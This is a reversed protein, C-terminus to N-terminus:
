YHDLDQIGGGGGTTDYESVTQVIGDSDFVYTVAHGESEAGGIFPGVYPIYSTARTKAKGYSYTWSEGGDGLDTRGNPVGLLRRVDDRTSEGKVIQSRLSMDADQKNGSHYVCGNLTMLGAFLTISLLSKIRNARMSVIGKM